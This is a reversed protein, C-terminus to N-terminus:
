VALSTTTEFMAADIRKMMAKLQKMPGVEYFDSIGAKIMTKVCTEWLLPETMQRLLLPIISKPSAGAYLASGSCNMYVDCKPPKMNGSVEQLLAELKPVAAAMLPTNFAGVVILKAQLAGAAKVEKELKEMAAKSGGCTIGKPFLVNAIFCEAGVKECLVELKKQRLGAVSLMAQGASAAAMAEARLKTIKLGDEFTLVEAAVLAALEGIGFGAVAGPRAVAEPNTEKLKELAALDAVFLAPHGFETKELKAASSCVELVDWGLITKASALMTKVTPMDKVSDLMKVYQSGQGPFLLGTATPHESLDLFYPRCMSSLKKSVLQVEVPSRGTSTLKSDYIRANNLPGALVYEGKPTSAEAKKLVSVIDDWGWQDALASATKGDQPNSGQPMRTLVHPDAGAKLLAEVCELQGNVAAYHLANFESQHQNMDGQFGYVPDAFDLMTTLLDLDGDYSAKCFSNLDFRPGHNPM